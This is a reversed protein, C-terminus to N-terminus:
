MERVKLEKQGKVVNLAILQCSIKPMYEDDLSEAKDLFVPLSMGYFKQLSDCIDLKAEIERGTNTSDGFSKGDVTPICTDKYEGNKQHDFLRWKVVSFHSNIEESLLENKRKSIEKLQLLISEAVTKEQEYVTKQKQLDAIAEDIRVNNSAQAIIEKAEDMQKELEAKQVKYEAAPDDTESLKKIEVEVAVIKAKTPLYDANVTYDVETPYDSLERQCETVKEELVVLGDKLKKLSVENKENESKIYEIRAKAEKGQKEIEAINEAKSKEFKEKADALEKEAKAKTDAKKQGFTAKLEEVKADPLPQGCLSCVTSSEDFKWDNENFNLTGAFVSKKANRWEVTLEDRQKESKKLQENGFVITKELEEISRKATEYENKANLLSDEIQRKKATFDGTIPQMIGSLDLDLQLKKGMLDSLAKGSDAIKVDLDAIKRKCDAVLLEQESVDIDVKAKELGIIQNPIDNQAKSAKSVTAKNMAEIEDLTYSELLKAVQTTEESMQAIELDSKASAMSFIVERMEKDKLATFVDPHSCILFLKMNIGDNELYANFDRETKPVNNIEYSNTLTVKVKGDADPKSVSKKQMKCLTIEKGNNDVVATVKPLCEEVNDPRVNPNSVLEYNRGCMLWYWATAITTKGLRNTGDISTKDFFDYTKDTVGKFFELHMSKLKM